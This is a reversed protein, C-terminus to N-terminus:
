RPRRSRSRRPARSSSSRCCSRRAPEIDVERSFPEHGAARAALRHRGPVLFGHRFSGDQGAALPEEDISLVASPPTTSVVIAGPAVREVYLEDVSSTLAALLASLGGDV